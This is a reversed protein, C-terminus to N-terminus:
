EAHKEAHKRPRGPGRKVPAPAPADDDLDAFRAAEALRAAIEASDAVEAPADDDDRFRSVEGATVAGRTVGGWTERISLTGLVAKAWSPPETYPRGDPRALGLAWRGARPDVENAQMADVFEPAMPTQGAMRLLDADGDKVAQMAGAGYMKQAVELKFRDYEAWAEALDERWADYDIRFRGRAGNVGFRHYKAPPLLWPHPAKWGVPLIPSAPSITADDKHFSGSWERGHQDTWIFTSLTKEQSRQAGMAELFAPATM